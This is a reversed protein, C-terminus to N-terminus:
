DFLRGKLCPLDVIGNVAKSCVKRVSGKYFLRSDVSPLQGTLKLSTSQLLYGVSSELERNSRATKFDLAPTKVEILQSLQSTNTAALYDFSM